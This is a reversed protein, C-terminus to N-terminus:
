HPLSMEKMTPLGPADKSLVETAPDLAVFRMALLEPVM